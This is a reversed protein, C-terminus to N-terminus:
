TKRAIFLAAVGATGLVGVAIWRRTNRERMRSQVCGDINSRLQELTPKPRGQSEWYAARETEFPKCTFDADVEREWPYVTPWVPHELPTATAALAYSM